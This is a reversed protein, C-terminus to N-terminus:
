NSHRRSTTSDAQCVSVCTDPQLTCASEGSPKYAHECAPDFECILPQVLLFYALMMLATTMMWFSQLWMDPDREASCCQKTIEKRWITENVHMPFTCSRQTYSKDWLDELSTDYSCEPLPDLSLIFPESGYENCEVSSRCESNSGSLFVM